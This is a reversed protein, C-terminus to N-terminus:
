QNQTQNEQKERKLNEQHEIHQRAANRDKEIVTLKALLQSTVQLQQAKLKDVENCAQEREMMAKITMQTAYKYKEELDNIKKIAEEHKAESVRARILFSEANDEIEALKRRCMFSDLEFDADKSHQRKLYAVEDRLRQIEEEPTESM